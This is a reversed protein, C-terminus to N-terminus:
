RSIVLKAEGPDADDVKVTFRGVPKTEGEKITASAAGAKVTISDDKLNSFEFKQGLATVNAKGSTKVTVDCRNAKCKSKTGSCAAPTLAFAATAVIAVVRTVTNM